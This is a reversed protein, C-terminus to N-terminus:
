SVDSACHERRQVEKPTQVRTAGQDWFPPQDGQMKFCIIIKWFGQHAGAIHEAQCMFKALKIPCM